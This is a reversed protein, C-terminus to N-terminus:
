CFKPTAVAGKREHSLGAVPIRIPLFLYSRITPRNLLIERHAKHISRHRGFFGVDSPSRGMLWGHYVDLFHKISVAHELQSSRSCPCDDIWSCYRTFHIGHDGGTRGIGVEPSM